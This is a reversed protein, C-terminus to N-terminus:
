IYDYIRVRFLAKILANVLAIGEGVLWVPLLVRFQFVRLKPYPLRTGRLWLTFVIGIFGFFGITALLIHTLFLKSRWPVFDAYPLQTTPTIGFSALVATAGDVLIALVLFVLFPHKDEFFRYSGVAYLGLAIVALLINILVAPHTSM